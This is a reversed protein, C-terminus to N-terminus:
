SYHIWYHAVEKEREKEKSSSLQVEQQVVLQLAERLYASWIIHAAAFTYTYRDEDYILRIQYVSLVLFSKLFYM